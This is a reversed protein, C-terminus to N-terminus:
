SSSSSPRSSGEPSKTHCAGTRCPRVLYLLSNQECNVRMEVLDLVDGSTEGKIWLKNRSTSWLVCIKRRFSEVFAQENAYAVILVEMTDAHQVVVPVVPSECAAVKKLKHWDLIFESGEELEEHAM